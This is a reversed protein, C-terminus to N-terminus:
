KFLIRRRHPHRLKSIARNEVDIIRYLSVDFKKALELQSLCEDNNLGYRLVIVTEEKESLQQSLFLPLKHIVSDPFSTVSYIKTLFKLANNNNM